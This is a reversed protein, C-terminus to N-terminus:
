RRARHALVLQAVAVVEEPAVEVAVDDDLVLLRAPPVAADVDGVDHRDGIEAGLVADDDVADRDRRRLHQPGALVRRDAVEAELDAVVEAGDLGNGRAVADLEVPRWAHGTRVAARLDLQRRRRLAGALLAQRGDRRRDGDDEADAHVEPEARQAGHEHQQRRDQEDAAPDLGLAVADELELLLEGLVLLQEGLLDGHQLGLADLLDAAAEPLRRARALQVREDARQRIAEPLPRGVVRVEQAESQARRLQRRARGIVTAVPPSRSRRASTSCIGSRKRSRSSTGSATSASCCRPTPMAPGKCAVRASARESTICAAVICLGVSRATTARTPSPPRCSQDNRLHNGWARVSPPECSAEVDCWASVITLSRSASRPPRPSPNSSGATSTRM